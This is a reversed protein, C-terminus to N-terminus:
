FFGKKFFAFPQNNSVYGFTGKGIPMTSLLIDLEKGNHGNAEEAVFRQPFGSPTMGEFHCVNECKPNPDCGAASTFRVRKKIGDNGKANLFFTRLNLYKGPKIQPRFHKIFDVIWNAEGLYYKFIEITETDLLIPGSDERTRKQTCKGDLDLYDLVAM